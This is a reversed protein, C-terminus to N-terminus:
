YEDDKKISNLNNRSISEKKYDLDSKQPNVLGFGISVGKGLGISKPLFVNSDFEVDFSKVLQNKYRLLRTHQITRIHVQIKKDIHWDIGKALSLINATLIKELFSLREQEYTFAQFRTYNAQNLALWDRITYTFYHEWVQMTFQQIRLSKVTLSHVQNHISIEWSPRQFLQHIVDVGTEICMIVPNRGIRKYQLLPYRYHFQDDGQHNHFLDHERGVHEIIASRFAPIDQTNLETDFRVVLYRIHKM